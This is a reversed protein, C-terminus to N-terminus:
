KLPRPHLENRLADRYGEAIGYATGTGRPVARVLGVEIAKDLAEARTRDDIPCTNRLEHQDAPGNHLLWRLVEIHLINFDKLWEGVQNEKYEDEPHKSTLARIQATQEESHQQAKALQETKDADLAEAGKHRSFLYTGVVSLFVGLVGSEVAEAITLM